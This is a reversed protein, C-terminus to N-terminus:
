MLIAFKMASGHYIEIRNTTPNYLLYVSGDNSLEIRDSAQIRIAESGERRRRPDM